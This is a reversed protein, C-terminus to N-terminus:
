FHFVHSINYQRLIDIFAFGIATALWGSYERRFVSKLSFPISPKRFGKLRPFFAPATMSWDTYVQGYKKELFREEAFMIREYYLWYVLSISIIFWFHGTFLLLGAWMLYNGLYLPHRVLSYIGTSNLADAVQEQTNRGSTGAPTTGITYARVIIGALSVLISLITLSFGDLPGYWSYDSFLIVPAALIFFILPIQGRYRFLLNGSREYEHILSMYRSSLTLPLHISIEPARLEIHTILDTHAILTYHIIHTSHDRRALSM